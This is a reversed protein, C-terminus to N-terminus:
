IKVVFYQVIWFCFLIMEEVEDMVQLIAWPKFIGYGARTITAIFDKVYDPAKLTHLNLDYVSDAGFKLCSQKNNQQAFNYEKTMPHAFTVIHLKTNNEM